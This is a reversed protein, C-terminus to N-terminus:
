WKGIPRSKFVASGVGAIHGNLVGNAIVCLGLLAAGLDCSLM